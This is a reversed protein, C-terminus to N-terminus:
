AIFTAAVAEAEEESLPRERVFVWVKKYDAENFLHSYEVVKQKKSKSSMSLAPYKAWKSGQYKLATISGVHWAAQNPLWHAITAGKVLLAADYDLIDYGPMNFPLLEAETAEAAAEEAEAAEAKRAAAEKAAAAKKAAAAAKAAAAESEALAEEWEKEAQAKDQDAHANTRKRKIKNTQATSALAAAGKSSSGGGSSAQQQQQQQENEKEREEEQKQQQQEQQQEQQQQSSPRPGLHRMGSVSDALSSFRSVSSATPTRNSSSRCGYPLSGPPVVQIGGETFVGPNRHKNPDYPGEAPSPWFDGNRRLYDECM